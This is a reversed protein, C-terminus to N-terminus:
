ASGGFPAPSVADGPRWPKDAAARVPLPHEPVVAVTRVQEGCGVCSGDEKVRVKGGPRVRCEKCGPKGLNSM